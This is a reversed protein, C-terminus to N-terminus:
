QFVDMDDPIPPLEESQSAESIINSEDSEQQTEFLVNSEKTEERITGISKLSKDDFRTYSKVLQSKSITHSGFEKIKIIDCPENEASSKRPLKINIAIDSPSIISESSSM